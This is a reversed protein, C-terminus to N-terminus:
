RRRLPEARLSRRIDAPPQATRLDGVPRAPRPEHLLLGIRVARRLRPRRHRRRLRRLERASAPDGKELGAARASRDAIREDRARIQHGDASRENGIRRCCPSGGKEAPYVFSGSADGAKGVQAGYGFTTVRSTCKLVIFLAHNIQGAELEQPRIVGALLDFGSATAEGGTGSGNIRSRNGWAFTMTGGATGKSSVQWFDYEWGEPTVVAMHGDSGGAPRATAPIPIQMGNIPDKGWPETSQLTYIPDGPESYYVPHMWDESTEAVGLAATGPLGFSLVKSVIEASQPVVADGAVTTNFPSSAAYPRWEASPWAGNGFGEWGGGVAIPSATASTTTHSGPPTTQGPQSGAAGPATPNTSTPTPTSTPAPANHHPARTTHCSAAVCSKHRVRRRAAHRKARKHRAHSRSAHKHSARALSAPAQWAALALAGALFAMLTLLTGAQTARRIM